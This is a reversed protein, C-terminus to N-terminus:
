QPRHHAHTHTSRGVLMLSRALYGDVVPQNVRIGDVCNTAFSVCCDGVLRASQTHAPLCLTYFPPSLLSLSFCPFLSVPSLSFCSFSRFPCLSHTLHCSLKTLSAHAHTERWWVQLVNATMVPKFTNLELQGNSGGVTVTVHNGMVQAAVMTVAECQTPNVKGTTLLLM